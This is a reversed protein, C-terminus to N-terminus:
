FALEVGKEPSELKKRYNSVGFEKWTVRAEWMREWVRDWERKVELM